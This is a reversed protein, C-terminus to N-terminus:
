KKPILGLTQEWEKLWEYKQKFYEFKERDSAKHSIGETEELLKLLLQIDDKQFHHRLLAEVKDKWEKQFREYFFQTNLEIIISNNELIFPLKVL